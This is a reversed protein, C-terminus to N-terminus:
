PQASAHDPQAPQASAARAVAVRARAQVFRRRSEDIMPTCDPLLAEIFALETDSSVHLSGTPLPLPPPAAASPDRAYAVCQEQVAYLERALSGRDLLLGEITGGVPVTRLAREAVSMETIWGRGLDVDERDIRDLVAELSAELELGDRALMVLLGSARVLTAVGVAQGMVTRGTQALDLSAALVRGLLSAAGARDRAIWRELIVLEAAQVARLMEIGPCRATLDVCRDELRAGSFVALVIPRLPTLVAPDLAAVAERLAADLVLSEDTVSHPFRAHLEDPGPARDLHREERVLVDWPGAAPLPGLEALSRPPPPIAPERGLRAAVIAVLLLVIVGLGGLVIPLLRPRSAQTM